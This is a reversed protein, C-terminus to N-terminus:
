RRHLSHTSLRRRAAGTGQERVVGELLVDIKSCCTHSWGSVFVGGATVSSSRVRGAIVTVTHDLATDGDILSADAAGAGLKVARAPDNDRGEAIEPPPIVEGRAHPELTSRVVAVILADDGVAVTMM